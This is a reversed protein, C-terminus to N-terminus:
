QDGDSDEEGYDFENVVNGLAELLEVNEGLILTDHGWQSYGNPGILFPIEVEKGDIKRTITGEVSINSM